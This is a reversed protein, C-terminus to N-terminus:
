LARVSELTDHAKKLERILAQELVKLLTKDTTDFVAKNMASYLKKDLTAVIYVSTITAGDEKSSTINM